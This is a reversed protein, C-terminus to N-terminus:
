RGDFVVAGVRADRAFREARHRDFPGDHTTISWCLEVIGEQYAPFNTFWMNNMIWSYVHARDGQLTESWEGTHIGGIQLLPADHPVLVASRNEDAVVVYEGVSHWDTCSGPLQDTGARYVAGANEVWAEPCEADFPFALYLSEYDTVIKKELRLLVDIRPLEHYLRVERFFKVGPLAGRTALANFVPGEVITCKRKGCHGPRRVFEPRPRKAQPNTVGLSVDYFKTQRGGGRIREHILEAFGWPADDDHLPWGLSKDYVGTIAGTAADYEIRFRANELGARPPGNQAARARNLRLVERASLKLVFFDGPKGATRSAKCRQGPIKGGSRPDLLAPANKGAGKIDTRLVGQWPSDFPNAAVLEGGDDITAALASEIDLARRLGKIALSRKEAWQLRSAPSWPDTVCAHYGWTHEDFLLLNEMAEDLQRPEIEINRLRALAASRKLSAKARRSCGAEFAASANGNAWWDPWAGRHTEFEGGHATEMFEFFDRNTAMEVRVKPQAENFHIVFDLLRPEPPQNDMAFHVALGRWRYGEAELQRVYELLNRTGEAVDKHLGLVIGEAYWSKRWETWWTLLRGGEPGEWWFPRELRLPLSMIFDPAASLYRIGHSALIDVVSWAIGPCDCFMATTLPLDNEAALRRARRISEEFTDRDYLDTPNTYLATLECEGSRISEFLQERDGGRRLYEVVPWSVEHIWRFRQARPRDRSEMALRTAEDVMAVLEDCVKDRDDTYGLDVHTHHLIFVREIV